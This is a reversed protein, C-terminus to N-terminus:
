VWRRVKEKYRRYENQFLGELIQEEPKIQFRTMYLEYVSLTAINAPVGLWVGWAILLIFNGVYMPNRSYKYIGSNVLQSAGEPKLPNVTTKAKLFAFLALFDVLLGLGAIALSIELQYQFDFKSIIHMGSAQWMLFATIAAVLPPPIKLELNM